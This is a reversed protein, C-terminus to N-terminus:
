IEQRSCNKFHMLTASLQHFHQGLTLCNPDLHSVSNSPTKDPDLSNAYPVITTSLLSLTLFIYFKMIEM